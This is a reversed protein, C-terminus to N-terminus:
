SDITMGDNQIGEVIAEAMRGDIWLTAGMYQWSEASVNEQMWERAAPSLPTLGVLSGSNALDFDFEITETQNNM